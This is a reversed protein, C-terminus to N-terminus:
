TIVGTDCDIFNTVTTYGIGQIIQNTVIKERNGVSDIYQAVKVDFYPELKQTTENFTYYASLAISSIFHHVPEPFAGMLPRLDWLHHHPDIIPLDPELIAESM